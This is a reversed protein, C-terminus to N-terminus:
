IRSDEDLKRGRLYMKDYIDDPVFLGGTTWIIHYANRTINCTAEPVPIGAAASPEIRINETKNLLYLYRFM